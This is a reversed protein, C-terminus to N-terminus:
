FVICKCCNCPICLELSPVRFTYWKDISPVHSRHKRQWIHYIFPYPAPGRPQAEGYSVKNLVGRDPGCKVRLRGLFLCLCLSVYYCLYWFKKLCTQAHRAWFGRQRPDVLWPLTKRLLSFGLWPNVTFSAFLNDYYSVRTQALRWEILKAWISKAM